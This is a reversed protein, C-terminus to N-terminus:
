RAVRPACDPGIPRALSALFRALFRMMRTCVTACHIKDRNNIIIQSASSSYLMSATLAVSMTLIAANKKLSAWVKRVDPDKEAIESRLLLAKAPDMGGLKALRVAQAPTPPISGKRIDSLTQKPVGIAEALQRDYRFALSTKAADIYAAFPGGTSSENQEM